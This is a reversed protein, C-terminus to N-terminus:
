RHGCHQDAPDARCGRTRLETPVGDVLELGPLVRANCFHTVWLNVISVAIDSAALLALAVIAAALLLAPSPPGAVHVMAATMAISLAVISGAYGLVGAARTCRTLRQNWPMRYASNVNWSPGGPRSGPLLRTRACAAAGTRARGRRRASAARQALDLARRAVDMETCRSRRAIEEIAHRYLDRTSFDFAAFSSRERM